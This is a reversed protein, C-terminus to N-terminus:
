QKLPLKQFINHSFETQLFEHHNADGPFIRTMLGYNKFLDIMQGIELQQGAGNVVAVFWDCGCITTSIIVFVRCWLRIGTVHEFIRVM